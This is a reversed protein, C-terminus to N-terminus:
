DEENKAWIERALEAIRADTDERLRAAVVVECPALDAIRYSLPPTNEIRLGSGEVQKRLQYVYKVPMTDGGPGSVLAAVDCWGGHNGHLGAALHLLYWFQNNQLWFERGDIVVRRRRKHAYPPADFFLM